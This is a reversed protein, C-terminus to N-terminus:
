WPWHTELYSISPWLDEQVHPELTISPRIGPNKRFYEFLPNFDIGGCGLALHSDIDGHNDHLHLHGLYIGLVSLWNGLAGDGFVAQHGVDLCFGVNDPSLERFLPLIDEPSREYVNELVLRSGLDNLRGSFWHWMALSNEIWKKRMYGYRFKEFGAHCVVTRPRFLPVLRLVQEFRRRTAARIERDISGPSLDVFPAHFTVSIGHQALRAACKVFMSDPVSDLIGADLGIEPNLRKELILDLYTEHLMDFPVNVHVKRLEDAM